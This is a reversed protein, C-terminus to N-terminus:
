CRWGKSGMKWALMRILLKPRGAHEVAAVRALECARDHTALADLETTSHYREGDLPGGNIQTEWGTSAPVTIVESDSTALTLLPPTSARM